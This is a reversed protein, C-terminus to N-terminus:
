ERVRCSEVRPEWAGGRREADAPIALRVACVFRIPFRELGPNDYDM